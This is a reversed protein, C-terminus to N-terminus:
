RFTPVDGLVDTALDDVVEGDVEVGEKPSNKLRPSEGKKVEDYFEIINETLDELRFNSLENLSETIGYKKKAVAHLWDNSLGRKNAAGYLKSFIGVRRPDEEKTVTRNPAEEDNDSIDADFIESAMTAQVTAAVLARKQAISEITNAVDYVNKTSHKKEKNNCSRVADSIFTGTAAHTIVCRYKYMVLNSAFDEVEKVLEMKAVFGFLKLLKEAGPKLLSKKSTYPIVGYDGGDGRSIDKAEKLQSKVFNIVTNRRDQFEQPSLEGGLVLAKDESM